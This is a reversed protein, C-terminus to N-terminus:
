VEEFCELGLDSVLENGTVFDEIEPCWGVGEHGEVECVKSRACELCTMGRIARQYEAERNECYIDWLVHPEVFQRELVTMSM